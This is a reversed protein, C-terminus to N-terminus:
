HRRATPSIEPLRMRGTLGRAHWPEHAGRVVRLPANADATRSARSRLGSRTTGLAPARAPLALLPIRMHLLRSRGAFRRVCHIRPATGCPHRFKSPTSDSRREMSREMRKRLDFLHLTAFPISQHRMPSLGKQSLRFTRAPKSARPQLSPATTPLRCRGAGAETAEPMFPLM